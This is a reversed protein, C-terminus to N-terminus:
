SRIYLVDNPAVFIPEDHLNLPLSQFMSPGGFVRIIESSSGGNDSIPIIYTLSGQRAESVRNFVDVLSSAATGGSLVVVGANKKASTM